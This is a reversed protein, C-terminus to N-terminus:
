YNFYRYVVDEILLASTLWFNPHEKASEKLKDLQERSVWQGSKVVANPTKLYGIDKSPNELTIVLDAVKGVKISGYQEAIKLAKAPNITAAQIVDFDSLGSQKLLAMEIHTSVGAAMYMMGSDSGVLLDVQQHHLEKVIQKLFNGKDIHFASQKPTDALWRAIAYKEELSVRVPNLYDLDLSNIYDQKGNSLNTLHDFVALTPTVAVGTQKIKAVVLKLADQDFQYNLPGQYIDEVHELSQLGQLYQWESGKAPHPGHKAVAIGLQNAQKIIAEFQAADQYGYLKIVDFGSAHVKEVLETAHEPSIVPQNLAHTNPSAFVPSSLYLNSGLWEGQKLEDRWLLHMRYGRMMRVSTVGYALSLALAKRELHHVHMDFLGPTVFANQGDRYEYGQPTPSGANTINEIIGNRITLQQDKQITQQEVMVLHVNDLVYQHNTQVQQLGSPQIFKANFIVLLSVFLILFVSAFSRRLYKIFRAKPTM